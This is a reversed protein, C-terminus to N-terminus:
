LKSSFEQIAFEDFNELAPHIGSLEYEFDEAHDVDLDLEKETYLLIAVADVVDEASKKTYRNMIEEHVRPDYNKIGVAMDPKGANGKGTCFKKVSGIPCATIENVHELAMGVITYYLGALDRNSNGKATGYALDEIALHTQAYGHPSYTMVLNEFIQYIEERIEIARVVKDHERGKEPATKVCTTYIRNSVPCRFAIGTSTLSQDIAVLLPHGFM